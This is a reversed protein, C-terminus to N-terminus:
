VRYNGGIGLLNLAQQAWTVGQQALEKTEELKQPDTAAKTAETVAKKGVDAVVKPADKLGWAILGEDTNPGYKTYAASAADWVPSVLAKVPAVVLNGTASGMNGISRGTNFVAGAGYGLSNLGHLMGRAAFGVVPKYDGQYLRKAARGMQWAGEGAEALSSVLGEGAGAASKVSQVADAGGKFLKGVYPIRELLAYDGLTNEYVGAGLGALGIGAAGVMAADIPNKIAWKVPRKLAHVVLPAYPVFNAGLQVARGAGRIPAMAVHHALQAGRRVTRGVSKLADAWGGYKRRFIARSRPSMRGYMRKMALLEQRTPMRSQPQHAVRGAQVRRVNKRPM